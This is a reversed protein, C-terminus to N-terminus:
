LSQIHFIRIGVAEFAFNSHQYRERIISSLPAGNTVFCPRAGVRFATEIYSDIVAFDAPTVLNFGGGLLRMVDDAFFLPATRM